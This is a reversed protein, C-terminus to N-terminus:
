VLWGNICKVGDTSKWKYKTCVMNRAFHSDQTYKNKAISFFWFVKKKEM